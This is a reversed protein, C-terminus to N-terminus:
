ESVEGDTIEVELTTSASRHGDDAELRLEYTGAEGPRWRWGSDRSRPQRDADVELRYAVPDDSEIGDTEFDLDEDVRGQEPGELELAGELEGREIDADACRWTAVGAYTGVALHGQRSVAIGVAPDERPGETRGAEEIEGSEFEPLDAGAVREGSRDRLELHGDAGVMALFSGDPAWAVPSAVRPSAYSNLNLFTYSSEIPEGVPELDPLSWMRVTADGGSTAVRAGDSDVAADIIGGHPPQGGYYGEAEEEFDNPEHAEREARVKGDDDIFTLTGASRDALLVGRDTVALEVATGMPFGCAGEVDVKRDHIVEGDATSWVSLRHSESSCTVAAARQSDAGFAFAAPEDGESDSLIVEPEREGWRTLGFEASHWTGFALQSWDPSAALLNAGVNTWPPTEFVEGDAVRHVDESGMMQDTRLLLAGNDAFSFEAPEYWVRESPETWERELTDTCRDVLPQEDEGDNNEDEGGTGLLDGCGAAMVITMVLTMWRWKM